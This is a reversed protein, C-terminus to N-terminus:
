MTSQKRRSLLLGALTSLRSTASGSFVVSVVRMDMNKRVIYILDPAFYDIVDVIADSTLSALADCRLALLRAGHSAAM